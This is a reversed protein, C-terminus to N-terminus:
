YILLYIYLYIFVVARILINCSDHIKDRHMFIMSIVLTQNLLSRYSNEEWYKTSKNHNEINLISIVLVTNFLPKIFVKILLKKMM